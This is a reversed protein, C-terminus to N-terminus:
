LVQKKNMEKEKGEMKPAVIARGTYGCSSSSWPIPIQNWFCTLFKIRGEVADLGARPGVWSGACHIGPTAEQFAAPSHLQGSVEM